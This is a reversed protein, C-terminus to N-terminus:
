MGAGVAPDGPQGLEGPQDVDEGLPRLDLLPEGRLDGVREHADELRAADDDDDLALVQAHRHAPDALGARRRDGRRHAALKRSGAVRASAM